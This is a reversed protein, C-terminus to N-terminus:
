YIQFTKGKQKMIIKRQLHCDEPQQLVQMGFNKINFTYSMATHERCVAKNDQIHKAYVSAPVSALIGTYRQNVSFVHPIFNRSLAAPM